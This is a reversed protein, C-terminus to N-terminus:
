KLRSESNTVLYTSFDYFEGIVKAVSLIKKTPSSLVKKERTKCSDRRNAGPPAGKDNQGVQERRVFVAATCNQTVEHNQSGM